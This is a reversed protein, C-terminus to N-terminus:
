ECTSPVAGDGAFNTISEPTVNISFEIRQDSNCNLVLPSMRNLKVHNYRFIKIINKLYSDYVKVNITFDTLDKFKKYFFDYAAFDEFEIFQLEVDDNTTHTNYEPYYSDQNDYGVINISRARFFLAEKEAISIDMTEPFEFEINFLYAKALNPLKSLSKSFVSDDDITNEQTVDEECDFCTEATGKIKNILKKFINM